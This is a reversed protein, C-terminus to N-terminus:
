KWRTPRCTMQGKTWRYCVFLLLLLSILWINFLGACSFISAWLLFSAVGEPEREKTNRDLYLYIYIGPSRTQCDSLWPLPILQGRHLQRHDVGEGEEWTAYILRRGAGPINYYRLSSLSHSIPPSALATPDARVCNWSQQATLLDFWSWSPWLPGAPCGGDDFRIRKEVLRVCDAM